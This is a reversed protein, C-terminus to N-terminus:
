PKWQYLIQPGGTPVPVIQSLTGMPLSFFTQAMGTLGEWFSIKKRYTVVEPIGVKTLVAALVVTKQLDGVFNVLKREDADAATFIAGTAVANTEAESLVRGNKVISRFRACYEDVLRQLIVREEPAMRKFPSGIDKMSSSKITEMRVGVKGALDEVNLFQMIVGISGVLSTPAAVIADADAAIYYAGSAMTGRAYAFVSIGRQKLRLLADRIEDCAGVEGGPSNIDLIVARTDTQNAAVDIQDLIIEIPDQATGLLSPSAMGRILPGNIPIVVFVGRTLSTASAETISVGANMFAETSTFRDDVLSAARVRYPEKYYNKWVPQEGRTSSGSFISGMGWLLAVYLGVIFVWFIGKFLGSRRARKQQLDLTKAISELATIIKNSEHPEM